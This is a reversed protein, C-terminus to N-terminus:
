TTAPSLQRDDHHGLKDPQASGGGTRQPQALRACREEPRCRGCFASRLNLLIVARKRLLIHAVRHCSGIGDEQRNALLRGFTKEREPGGIARAQIRVAHPDDLQRAVLERDSKATSLQTLREVALPLLERRDDISRGVRDDLHVLVAPDHPDIWRRALQQAPWPVVTNAPAATFYEAAGLRASM